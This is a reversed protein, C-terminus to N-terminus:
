CNRWYSISSIFNAVKKETDRHAENVGIFGIEKM